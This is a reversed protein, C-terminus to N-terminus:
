PISGRERLIALTRELIAVEGVADFDEVAEVPEAAAAGAGDLLAFAVEDQEICVVAQQEHLDLASRQQEVAPLPDPDDAALLAQEVLVREGLRLAAHM